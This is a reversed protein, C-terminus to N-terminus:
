NPMRERGHLREIRVKWFDFGGERWLARQGSRPGFYRTYIFWCPNSLGIISLMGKAGGAYTTPITVWEGLEPYDLENMM